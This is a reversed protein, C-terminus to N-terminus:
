NSISHHLFRGFCLLLILECSHLLYMPSYKIALMIRDKIELQEEKEIKKLIDSESCEIPPIAILRDIDDIKKEKNGPYMLKLFSNKDKALLFLLINRQEEASFQNLNQIKFILCNHDISDIKKCIEEFRKEKNLNKINQISRLFPISKKNQYTHFLSACFIFGMLYKNDVIDLCYKSITPIFDVVEKFNILLQDSFNVPYYNNLFFFFVIIKKMIFKIYKKIFM